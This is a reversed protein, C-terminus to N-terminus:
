AAIERQVVTRRAQRVRHRVQRCPCAPMHPRVGCRSCAVAGSALTTVPPGYGASAQQAAVVAPEVALTRAWWAGPRQHGFTFLARSALLEAAFMDCFWEEPVATDLFCRRRRLLVHGLEHALAFRRQPPRLSAAVVVKDTGLTAGWLGGRLKATTVTIGLDDGIRELDVPSASPIRLQATLDALGRIM